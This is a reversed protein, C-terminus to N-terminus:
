YLLQRLYKTFDTKQSELNGGYMYRVKVFMDVKEHKGSIFCEFLDNANRLVRNELQQFQVEHLTYNTYISLTLKVNRNGCFM